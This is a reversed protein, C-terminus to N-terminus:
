DSCSARMNWIAEFEERTIPEPVFQPDAAIQDLPPVPVSGLRTGGCEIEATTYGKSGDSFVEIKRIERREDDLEGILWIPDEPNDHLWRVRIYEV